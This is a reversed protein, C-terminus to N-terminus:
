WYWLSLLGCFMCIYLLNLMLLIHLHWRLISAWIPMTYIQKWFFFWTIMWLMLSWYGKYIWWCGIVFGVASFFFNERIGRKGYSHHLTDQSIKPIPLFHLMLTSKWFPYYLCLILTTALLIIKIQNNMMSIHHYLCLM